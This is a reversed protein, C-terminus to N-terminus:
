KVVLRRIAIGYDSIVSVLYIGSQWGEINLHTNEDSAVFSHILRGQMNYIHVISGVPSKITSATAAPNPYITIQSAHDPAHISVEDGQELLITLDMDSNVMLSGKYTKFGPKAVEIEFEGPLHTFYASGDAATERTGARDISVLAEDLPLEDDESKVTISIHYFPRPLPNNTFVKYDGPEFFFSHNAPNTVEIAEGTFYNYWTGAHQFEPAMDFGEVGMNAAMVVNMSVHSVWARKGLGDLDNNFQGFRFADHSRLQIMANYVRHLRQREPVNWYDWRPPKPATRDGGYFISYDYGIEGFQWIMKPGPIGLFLVASMEMHNLATLTDSLSYNGSSNGYTLAEFMLREEDHNEMYDILNPYNWGRTSHHAWALSSNQQYGMAVQKYNDHMASWLMMGTNALVTEEDNAAFHELIVYANPKVSKIHNYYDTLINIRSQDYASWAGMDDGSYNQTLGKSLDIRYGDVNFETLWYEFVRKFFTRVYPSEHNFDYGVSFPHPAQQNFWPNEPLPQGFEGASPDFYMNVLPNQGFAHNPVIDLIVAIDRLHCADIFEKYAQRTGYYKDTAFFFNPAYGWSDNGDFEMVPMLQIANVGLDQLYDLKDTVDTIHRSDLFDRILLEYIVLDQQTENLAVPTFDPVQWQWAPRGPHMISVIGTTKGFPYAKLNPYTSSSIWPDNWPDLIKEAYADALRMEGDIYYQFAYETDPELDTLTIWFRQGDPTRKMYNDDGPLWDSYDGIAFAFQKLGAPDHLVLTVTQNDIYNIGNVVDAPLDEVMVPGRLYVAVSDWVEATDDAAKARIWHTGPDLSQLVLPWTLSSTSEEALLQDNLYISLSENELAEVCVALVQSPSALPNRADPSLIKVNLEPEYIDIFIDSNDSNKHERYNGFEDPEGSRFVFALQLIEEGAPVGYYSRISAIELAYLNDDLPTLMTESTNEGWDTKVYKWDSSNSSESTIVGTHAYVEGDYDFLGGNGMETNFYLTLPTNELPFAPDTTVVDIQQGCEMQQDVVYSYNSGSNNNMRLSLLDFDQNVTELTSSFVYYEVTTESDQGPLTTMAMANDTSMPLVASSTWADTTYRLYFFEDSGPIASLNAMIDVTQQSEVLPPDQVVSSILTPQQATEMFIVRTNGYGSDEFIVTYWYNQIVNVVNNPDSPTGYLVTEITNIDINANGAWQNGWPDGLSTSAFKFEQSGTEGTYQFTTQWRLTGTPIRILDFDGGMGSNNTWSNWEGPMRLGDPPFIQAAVPTSPTMLMVVLIFSILLTHLAPIRKRMKQQIPQLNDTLEKKIQQRKSISAPAYM